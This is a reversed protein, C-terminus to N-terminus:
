EVVCSGTLSCRKRSVLWTLLTRGIVLWIASVTAVVESAAPIVFALIPGVSALGLTGIARARGWRHAVNYYHSYALLRQLHEPEDQRQTIRASEGFPVPRSTSRGSM